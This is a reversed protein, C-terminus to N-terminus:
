EKDNHFMGTLLQFIGVEGFLKKCNGPILESINLILHITSEVLGFIERHTYIKVLDLDNPLSAYKLFSSILNNANSEM